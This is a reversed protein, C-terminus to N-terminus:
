AVVKKRTPPHIYFCLCFVLIKKIDCAISSILWKRNQFHRPWHKEVQTGGIKEGKCNKKPILTGGFRKEVRTYRSSFFTLFWQGLCNCYSWANGSIGLKPLQQLQCQQYKFFSDPNNSDRNANISGSSYVFVFKGDKQLSPSM